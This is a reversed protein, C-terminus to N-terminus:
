RKKKGKSRKKSRKKSSKGKGKQSLRKLRSERAKKSLSQEKSKKPPSKNLSKNRLKKRLEARAKEHRMDSDRQYKEKLADEKRHRELDIKLGIEYESNIEDMEERFTQPEPELEPEPEPEPEPAFITEPQEPVKDAYRYDYEESSNDSNSGFFDSGFDSSDNSHDNLRDQAMMRRHTIPNHRHTSLHKSINEMISPEYRLNSNEMGRSMSLRQRARLSKKNNHTRFSRQIKTSAHNKILDAIEKNAAISLANRDLHDKINVNAGRNLLLRVIDIQYYAAAHMLATQNSDNTIDINAGSSLLLKVINIYGYRSAELLPIEGGGPIQSYKQWIVGEDLLRRVLDINNMKIAQNM